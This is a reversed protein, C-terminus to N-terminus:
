LKKDHHNKRISLCDWEEFPVDRAQLADLLSGHVAMISIALAEWSFKDLVQNTDAYLVRIETDKWPGSTPDQHPAPVPTTKRKHSPPPDLDPHDGGNSSLSSSKGLQSRPPSRSRSSTSDHSRKYKDRHSTTEKRPLITMPASFVVPTWKWFHSLVPVTNWLNPLLPLGCIMSLFPQNTVMRLKIAILPALM